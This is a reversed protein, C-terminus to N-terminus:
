QCHGNETFATIPFTMCHHAYLITLFFLMVQVKTKKKCFNIMINAFLYSCLPHSLAVLYMPLSLTRLSCTIHPELAPFSTTLDKEKLRSFILHYISYRNNQISVCIMNFSFHDIGLM